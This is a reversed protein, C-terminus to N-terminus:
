DLWNCKLGFEAELMLSIVGNSGDIVISCIEYSSRSCIFMEYSAPVEWQIGFVFVFALYM